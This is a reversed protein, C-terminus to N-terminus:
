RGAGGGLPDRAQQLRCFVVVRGSWGPAEELAGADTVGDPLIVSLGGMVLTVREARLAAWAYFSFPGCWARERSMERAFAVM